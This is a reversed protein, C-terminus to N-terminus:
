LVRTVGFAPLQQRGRFRNWVEQGYESAGQRLCGGTGRGPACLPIFDAREPLAGRGEVHRQHHIEPTTMANGIEISLQGFIAFILGSRIHETPTFEM